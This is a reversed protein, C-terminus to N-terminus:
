DSDEMDKIIRGSGSEDTRDVECMANVYADNPTEGIAVIVEEDEDEYGPVTITASVARDDSSMVGLADTWFRMCMADGAFADLKYVDHLGVICVWEDGAYAGRYRSERIHVPYRDFEDRPIFSTM